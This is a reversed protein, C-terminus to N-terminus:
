GVVSRDYVSCFFGAAFWRRAMDHRLHLRSHLRAATGRSALTAGTGRAEHRERTSRQGFPRCSGHHFDFYPNQSTTTQSTGNATTLRELRLCADGYPIDSSARGLSLLCMRM